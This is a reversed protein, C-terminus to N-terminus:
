INVVISLPESRRAKKHHNSRVGELVVNCLRGCKHTHFFQQQGKRGRDTQGHVGVATREANHYHIVPDSLQLVRTEENYVGQLDCVLRKRNSTWYSYHSFAQAVESPSYCRPMNDDDSEYEEGTEFEEPEEKIIGLDETEMRRYAVEMDSTDFIPREKMGEVYGNNANWKHWKRPDLRDEVLLSVKGGIEYISCELFQIKPTMEDISATEDMKANFIDALIKARQQTSCHTAAFHQRAKAADGDTVLRNAKAVYANGVITRRDAALEYFRYAFREGGEDFPGKSLAVFRADPHQLGFTSAKWISGTTDDRPSFSCRVVQDAPWITFEEQTVVRLHVNAKKKSERLVSVVRRQQQNQFGSLELKSTTLSDGVKTFVHTLSSTSREPVHFMSVAGYDAAADAMEKLLDFQLDGFGITSLTLRRGFEQGLQGAMEVLSSEVNKLSADRKLCGDSPRGDTLMVLSVACAQHVHKQLLQTAVQWSPLFLGHGRPVVASQFDVITNFLIWDCPQEKLLVTADSDLMVISLRDADTLVGSELRQAIFDLAVALWVAGLRTRTGWCDSQRMSGSTDVILVTHSLWTEPPRALARTHADHLESSIPVPSVAIPTAYCTVEEGTKDNVIYTIDNYTYVSTPDGNPRNRGRRRTGYKKARQLDRKDIGRQQRRLRGHAAEIFTVQSTPINNNSLLSLTSSSSRPVDPKLTGNTFGNVPPKMFVVEDDDDDANGDAKRKASTRATPLIRDMIASSQHSIPSIFQFM